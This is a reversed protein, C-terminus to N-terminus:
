FSWLQASTLCDKIYDSIEQNEQKYALITELYSAYIKEDSVGLPKLILATAM